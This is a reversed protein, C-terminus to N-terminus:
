KYFDDLMLHFENTNLIALKFKDLVTESIRYGEINNEKALTPHDSLELISIFSKHLLFENNLYQFAQITDKINPNEPKLFSFFDAKYSTAL